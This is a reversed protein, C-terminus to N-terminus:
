NVTLLHEKALQETVEKARAPNMKALIKGAKDEKMRSVVSLLVEQEMKEFINAADAPKMSEYIRVLRKTKEDEKKNYQELLAKVENELRKLDEMKGNIKKETANLINEKMAISSSWEELEKRRKALNELLNKEMDSMNTVQLEKPGAGSYGPSLKAGNEANTEAAEGEPKAEGEAAPTDGRGESKAKDGSGTKEAPNEAASAEAKTEPTAKEDKKGSDQALASIESIKASDTLNAKQEIVDFVKVVVATFAVFIVLPLIRLRM